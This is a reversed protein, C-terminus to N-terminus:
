IITYSPIHDTNHKYWCQHFNYQGFQLRSPPSCKATPRSRQAKINSFFYRHQTDISTIQEETILWPSRRMSYLKCRLREHLQGKAIARNCPSKTRPLIINGSIYDRDKRQEKWCPM